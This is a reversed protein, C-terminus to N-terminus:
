GSFEFIIPCPLIKPKALDASKPSEPFDKEMRSCVVYDRLCQREPTCMLIEIRFALFYLFTFFLM